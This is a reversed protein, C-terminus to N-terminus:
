VNKNELDQKYQLDKEEIIKQLNLIKNELLTVEKSKDNELKRKCKLFHRELAISSGLSNNCFNCKLKVKYLTGVLLRDFIFEDRNTDVTIKHMKFLQYIILNFLLVHNNFLELNINGFFYLLIRLINFNGKFYEQGIYPVISTMSTLFLKFYKERKKSNECHILYIDKINFTPGYQQFRTKINLDTKGIKYVSENNEQIIYNCKFLYLFGSIRNDNSNYLDELTTYYNFNDNIEKNLLNNALNKIEEM